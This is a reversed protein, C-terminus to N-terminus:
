HKDHGRGHGKGHGKGHGRDDDRDHGRDYGRDHDHGRDDDRRDHRAHSRRYEPAYTNNYWSDQVFYVQRGCANYARCHKHWKKAHGPPVRLYMPEAVYRTQREVIIPERYMVQPPPMNGLEIRGYYGPGGINIGVGVDVNQAMAGSAASVLLAAILFTKM